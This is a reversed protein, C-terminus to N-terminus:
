RSILDSAAEGCKKIVYEEDLTKVEGDEMLIRGDVITTDVDSGRASYVLNAYINHNPTLHPRRLNLLILDAKKGAELSGIAGNLGLVEAGMITAMELVRHVPLTRPDGARVKQLLAGVKMTEFIDLSNNSAPGDTGFGVTIGLKIMDNVNPIGTALKMNAIPNYSVKVGHRALTKMDEHTIHICHAAVVDPGLFGMDSLLEVEGRGYKSRVEEAEDVSEALHIHIGVKLKSAAKRVMRLLKPTCSYVAHPGLQMTIRGDAYGKLRKVTRIAGMFLLRGWMPRGAEIIGPALVARLGAEKVAKAVMDEHFYMDAFCTVGNKIMELCSLLTGYYIDEPKLKAELPWITERLWTNLDKDEAIGRLLSMPAHTHCNILGPMAIKGQAEITKEADFRPAGEGGGVYQLFGDRIAILGSDIVEHERNMTLIMCGRILMDVKM